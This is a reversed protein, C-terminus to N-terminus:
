IKIVVQRVQIKAGAQTVCVSAFSVTVLPMLDYFAFYCWFPM